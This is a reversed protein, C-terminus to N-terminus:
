AMTSILRANKSLVSILAESSGFAQFLCWNLKHWQLFETPFAMKENPKARTVSIPCTLIRFKVEFTKYHLCVVQLNSLNFNQLVTLDLNILLHTPGQVSQFPDQVSSLKSWSGACPDWGESYVCVFSFMVKAVGKAPPLIVASAIM